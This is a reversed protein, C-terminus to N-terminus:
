LSFRDVPQTTESNPLVSLNDRGAISEPITKFIMLFLPWKRESKREWACLDGYSCFKHWDLIKRTSCLWPFWCSCECLLICVTPPLFHILPKDLPLKDRFGALHLTSPVFPHKLNHGVKWPRWPVFPQFVDKLVTQQYWQCSHWTFRNMM